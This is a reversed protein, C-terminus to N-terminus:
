TLVHAAHHGPDSLASAADRRITEHFPPSTFLSFIVITKKSSPHVNKVNIRTRFQSQHHYEAQAPQQRRCHLRLNWPPSDPVPASMMSM